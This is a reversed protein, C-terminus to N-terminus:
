ILHLFLHRDESILGTNQHVSFSELGGDLQSGGCLAVRTKKAGSFLAGCNFFYSPLHPGESICLGFKDDLGTPCGGPIDLLPLSFISGRFFLRPVRLCPVLTPRTLNFLLGYGGHGLTFLVGWM